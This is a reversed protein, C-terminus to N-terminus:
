LARMTKGALSCSLESIFLNSAYPDYEAHQADLIGLVNRAYEIVMHQFGGCTGICPWDGERAVRIAEIAGNLSQYPSGPAVWLAHFQKVTEHAKHELPLTPLWEVEVAIGVSDGAHELAEDTATHPRFDPDFDGVIGVRLPEAM